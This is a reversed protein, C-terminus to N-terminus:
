PAVQFEAYQDPLRVQVLARLQYSGAPPPIVYRWPAQQEQLMAELHFTTVLSDRAPVVFYSVVTLCGFGSGKLDVRQENHLADITAVCSSGSSITVSNATPNIVVLKATMSDGAQVVNPTVRFSIRLDGITGVPEACAILLAGSALSLRWLWSRTTKENHTLIV